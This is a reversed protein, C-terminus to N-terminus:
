YECVFVGCVWVGLCWVGVGGCVCVFCVKVCV